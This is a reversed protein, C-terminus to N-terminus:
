PVEYIDVLVNGATNSASTAVATYSQGPQLTLLVVADHVQPPNPQASVSNMAAALQPDGGWGSNTAIVTSGANVTLVPDSMAGTIGYASLGPGIARILVTKATSGGVYFGDTLSGNAPVTIRCSLNVLRPTALTYTNALTNDYVEALTQGSDGNKGDVQVTYGPSAALSLVVASDLSATNTYVLGAGTNAQAANVLAINSSPTGWGANSAISASGNFVTLEPDALVGSVGYPILAPGGARIMLAQSGTTGSGGTVFGMILNPIGISLNVKANVSLNVLRGPDAATEISLIAASSTATGASNTATCTYTGNDAVSTNSIVLRASTAGSIPSGGRSWQLTPSPTGSVVVSFVATSGTEVTYSSPQATFLPLTGSNSVTLSIPNSAATGSSNSVVVTYTGAVAAGFNSIQLTATNGGTFNPGSVNSGNLRWQYSLPATGSAVVQLTVTSGAAASQSSSQTTISPATGAAAAVNVTYSLSPSALNNKANSGNPYEWAVVAFTYTGPTTPTGELLAYSTITNRVGIGTLGSLDLGPPITGSTVEWSSPASQTGTTSFVVPSIAQGATASLPSVPSAVTRTAGALSHVAGLSVVSFASKLIAGAPSVAAIRGAFEAVREIPLRQLLAILVTTPLNVWRLRRCLSAASPM